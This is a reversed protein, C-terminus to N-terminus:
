GQRQQHARIAPLTAVTAIICPSLGASARRAPLLPYEKAVQSRM